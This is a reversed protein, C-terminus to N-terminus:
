RGALSYIFYGIGAGLVFGALSMALQFLRFGFFCLIIGCILSVCLTVTPM